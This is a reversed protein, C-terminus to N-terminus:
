ISITREGPIDICFAEYNPQDYVTLTHGSLFFLTFSGPPDIVYRIVPVGIIRHLRYYDRADHEQDEDITAGSSDTLRWSGEVGLCFGGDFHFNIRYKCLTIGDLDRNVIRDLPLNQPVGHM